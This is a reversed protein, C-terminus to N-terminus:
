SRVMRSVTSSSVWRFRIRSRGTNKCRRNKSSHIGMSFRYKAARKGSPLQWDSVGQCFRCESLAAKTLTDFFDGITLFCFYLPTCGLLRGGQPFTAFIKSKQRILPLILKSRLAKQSVACREGRSYRYVSRPRTAQRPSKKLRQWDTLFLNKSLSAFAASLSHRKQTDRGPIDTGSIECPAVQVFGFGLFQLIRLFDELTTSM